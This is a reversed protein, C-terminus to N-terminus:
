RPALFRQHAPIIPTHVSNPSNPGDTCEVWTQVETRHGLPFLLLLLGARWKREDQLDKHSYRISTTPRGGYPLSQVASRGRM